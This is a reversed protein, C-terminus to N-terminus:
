SSLKWLVVLQQLELKQLKYERIGFLKNIPLRQKQKELEKNKAETQDKAARKRAEAEEESIAGSEALNEIREIDEDYKEENAEREEEIKQIQGDYISSVLNGIAGVAQSATQLWKKLNKKQVQQKCLM